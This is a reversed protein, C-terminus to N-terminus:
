RPGLVGPDNLTTPRVCTAAFAFAREPCVASLITLAFTFGAIDAFVFTAQDVSSM